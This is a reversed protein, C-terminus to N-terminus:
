PKFHLCGGRSVSLLLSDLSGRHQLMLLAELSSLSALGALGALGMGVVGSPHNKFFTKQSFRAATRMLVMVKAIFTQSFQPETRM